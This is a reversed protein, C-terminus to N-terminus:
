LDLLERLQTIEGLQEREVDIFVIWPNDGEDILVDPESFYNRLMTIPEFFDPCERAVCGLATAEDLVEKNSSLVIVVDIPYNYQRTQVARELVSVGDVKELLKGYQAPDDMPVHDALVAYFFEGEFM